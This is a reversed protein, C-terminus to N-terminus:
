ASILFHEVILALAKMRDHVGFANWIVAWPQSAKLSV